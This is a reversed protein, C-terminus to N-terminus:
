IMIPDPTVVHVFFQKFDRCSGDRHFHRVRIGAFDVAPLEGNVLVFVGIKQFEAALIHVAANRLQYEQSGAANLPGLVQGSFPGVAVGASAM